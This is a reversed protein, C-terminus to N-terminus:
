PKVVTQYEDLTKRFKHQAVIEEKWDEYSRNFRGEQIDRDTLFGKEHLTSLANAVKNPDTHDLGVPSWRYTRTPKVRPDYNNLLAYEVWWANFVPDIVEDSVDHRCNEQGAKYFHTDVVASAMNSEQSSGAGLIFPVQLPRLIERLLSNVFKDYMQIPQEAKMQALKTGWPLTTVMGHEIPFSDFPDDDDPDISVQAAPNNTELVGSFAAALEAARVVALTYRRLLACLPLSPTIEPIGRLWGRDQRFWHIMQKAPIWRGMEKKAFQLDLFNNGPHSYLLFYAVAKENEDFRIGDIENYNTRKNPLTGFSSIQDTEYLQVNLKVPNDIDNDTYFKAFTEGDVIKAMRFRWLKRRFKAAKCWALFDKEIINRDSEDFRSDNIQPTPGIGTFDDCLTLLTGKLYPNNEIVEYRSRSRLKKRVTLSNAAHPSLSDANAWHRQNHDSTGEADYKASLTRKIENRILRLDQRAELLKANLRQTNESRLPTGHADVLM